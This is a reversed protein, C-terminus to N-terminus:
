PLLITEGEQIYDGDSIGNVECVQSIMDDTGYKERCIKALTDGSQVIYQEYVPSEEVIEEAPEEVIEGAPEEVIEEVSEEVVEEVPEESYKPPEAQTEEVDGPLEEIIVEDGSTELVIEDNVFSSIQEEMTKIKDMQNKLTVAGVFFVLLVSIKLGYSMARKKRKVSKMRTEQMIKRFSAVAVDTKESTGCKTEEMNKEMLFERMMENKEYYVSYGPQKSFRNGNFGWFEGEKAGAKVFFLVKDAGSFYTRHTEELVTNKEPVCGQKSIFWGMIEQESFYQEGEQYITGWVKESFLFKGQKEIIGEVPLASKIYLYRKGGSKESKGFLIAVKVAPEKEASYQTLYTHVYDEIYIKKYEGPEGIQKRNQPEVFNKEETVAGGEENYILEIM